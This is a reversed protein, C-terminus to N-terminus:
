EEEAPPQEATKERIALVDSAAVTIDGLHILPVKESFDVGSVTGTM